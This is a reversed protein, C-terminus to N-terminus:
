DLKFVLMGTTALSYWASLRSSLSSLGLLQAKAIKFVQRFIPWQQDNKVVRVVTGTSFLIYFKRKLYRAYM